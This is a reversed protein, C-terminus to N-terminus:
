GNGKGFHLFLRIGLYILGIIAVTPIMWSALTGFTKTTANTINTTTASQEIQPAFTFVLITGLLLVVLGDIINGIHAVGQQNSRKMRLALSRLKFLLKDIM